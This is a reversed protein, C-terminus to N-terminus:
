WPAPEHWKKGLPSSLSHVVQGFFNQLNGFIKHFLRLPVLTMRYVLMPRCVFHIYEKRNFYWMLGFCVDFSNYLQRQWESPQLYGYYSGNKVVSNDYARKINILSISSVRQQKMTSCLYTKLWRRSRVSHYIQPVRHLLYPVYWISWERANGEADRFCDHPRIRACSSLRTCKRRLKWFRTTSKTFNLM